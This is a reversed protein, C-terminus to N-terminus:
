KRTEELIKRAAQTAAHYKSMEGLNGRGGDCIKFSVRSDGLLEMCADLAARLDRLQRARVGEPSPQVLGVMASIKRTSLHELAGETIDEVRRKGIAALVDIQKYAPQSPLKAKLERVAGRVIESRAAAVKEDNSMSM